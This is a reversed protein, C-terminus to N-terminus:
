DATRSIHIRAYKDHLRAVPINGTGPFRNCRYCIALPCPRRYDIIGRGLAHFKLGPGQLGTHEAQASNHPSAITNPLDLFPQDIRRGADSSKRVSGFIHFGQAILVKATGWGIGTSTGPAVVSRMSREEYTSGYTLNPMM